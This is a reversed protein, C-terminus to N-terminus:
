ELSKRFAAEFRDAERLIRTRLRPYLSWSKSLASKQIEEYNSKHLIDSLPRIWRQCAKQTEFFWQDNLFVNEKSPFSVWTSSSKQLCTLKGILPMLSNKSAIEKCSIPSSFIEYVEGTMLKFKASEIGESYILTLDTKKDLGLSTKLYLAMKNENESLLQPVSKLTNLSSQSSKKEGLESLLDAKLLPGRSVLPVPFGWESWFAELCRPSNIGDSSHFRALVEMELDIALLLLAPNAAKKSNLTLDLFTQGSLVSQSPFTNLSPFEQLLKTEFDEFSFTKRFFAWKNELAKEQTKKDLGQFRNTLDGFELVPEKPKSSQCSLFTFFILIFFKKMM